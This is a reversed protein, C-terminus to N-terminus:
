NDSGQHVHKSDKAGSKTANEEAKRKKIRDVVEKEQSGRTQKMKNYYSEIAKHANEISTFRGSLEAAVPGSDASISYFIFGGPAPSVTLVSKSKEPCTAKSIKKNYDTEFKVDVM